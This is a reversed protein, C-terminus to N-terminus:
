TGLFAYFFFSPGISKVLRSELFLGLTPEGLAFEVPYAGPPSEFKRPLNPKLVPRFEPPKNSSPLSCTGLYSVFSSSSSPISLDNISGIFNTEAM